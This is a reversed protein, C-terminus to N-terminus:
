KNKTILSYLLIFHTYIHLFGYKYVFLSAPWYGIDILICFNIIFCLFGFKYLNQYIFSRKKLIIFLYLKVKENLKYLRYQRIKWALRELYLEDLRINFFGLEITFNRRYRKFFYRKVTFVILWIIFFLIIALNNIKERVDGHYILFEKLIVWYCKLFPWFEDPLLGLHRLLRRLFLYEFTYCGKFIWAFIIFKNTLLFSSLYVLWVVSDLKNVIYNINYKKITQAKSLVPFLVPFLLFILMTVIGLLKNPIIKLISYLPLFYWEPIIHKPTKSPNAEIYNVPNALREPYFCIIFIIALNFILFAWADKSIFYPHLLTTTYDKSLYKSNWKQPTNVYTSHMCLIHLVILALTIFPLLYHLVFIRQLTTTGVEFGGWLYYVVRSGVLPLASLLQTIVTAGWFSMQGWPLIYGLFSTAVTLIFILYGSWWVWRSSWNYISYYLGKGMHWYLLIFIFSAGNMHFYRVYWGGKINRMISSISNFALEASPIYFMVLFLSYIKRM